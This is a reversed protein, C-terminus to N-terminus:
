DCRVYKIHIKEYNNISNELKWKIAELLGYNDQYANRLM